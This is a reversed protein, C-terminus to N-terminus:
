SMVGVLSQGWVPQSEKNLIAKELKWTLNETELALKFTYEGDRDSITYHHILNKGRHETYWFQVTGLEYEENEWNLRVPRAYHMEGDYFFLVHIPNKNNSSFNNRM